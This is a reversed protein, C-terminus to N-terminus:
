VICSAQQVKDGRCAVDRRLTMAVCSLWSRSTPMEGIISWEDKTEDYCEITDHYRCCMVHFNSAKHLTRTVVVSASPCKLLISVASHSPIPSTPDALYSGASSGGYGVM